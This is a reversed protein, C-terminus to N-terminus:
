CTPREAGQKVRVRCFHCTPEGCEGKSLSLVFPALRIAAQEKGVGKAGPIALLRPYPLLM